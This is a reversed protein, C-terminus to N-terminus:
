DAIASPCSYLRFKYGSSWYNSDQHRMPQRNGDLGFCRFGVVSDTLLEPLSSTLIAAELAAANAKHSPLVTDAGQTPTSFPTRLEVVVDAWRNGSCPPDEPGLDGEVFAVIRQGDKDLNNEGAFIRHSKGDTTKLSASWVSIAPDGSTLGLLYNVVSTEILEAHEAM